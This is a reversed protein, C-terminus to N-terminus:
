TRAAKLMALWIEPLAVAYTDAVREAEYAIKLAAIQMAQTPERPVVEYGKARLRELAETAYPTGMAAAIDEDSM